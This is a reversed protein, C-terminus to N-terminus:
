HPIQAMALRQKIFRPDGWAIMRYLARTTIPEPKDIMSDVFNKYLWRQKSLDNGFYGLLFSPDAVPDAEGRVIAGYSSWRYDEPKAVMGAKVPNLHIYRAAVTFYNDEQVPISHFRGQHLRGSRGHRRNFLQGYLGTLYQITRSLSHDITQLLLHFHNTMLCYAHLTFPFEDRTQAIFRLFDLRDRDSLFLAQKNTGRNTVHYVLGPVDIRPARPM